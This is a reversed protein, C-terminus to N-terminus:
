MLNVLEKKNVSYCYKEIHCLPTNVSRTLHFGDKLVCKFVNRNWIKSTLSRAGNYTYLKASLKLDEFTLGNEKDWRILGNKGIYYIENNNLEFAIIFDNGYRRFTGM